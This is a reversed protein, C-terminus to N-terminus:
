RPWPGVLPVDGRETVITAPPPQDAPCGTDTDAPYEHAYLKCFEQRSRQHSVTTLLRREERDSFRAWMWDAGREEFQQRAAAIEATLPGLSAGDSLQMRDTHSLREWCEDQGWGSLSLLERCAPVRVGASPHRVLGRELRVRRWLTLANGPDNYSFLPHTIRADGNSPEISWNMLAIREWLSRSDDLPLRRHPGSTIPFISRWWDRVVHYRGNEVRVLFLAREGDRTSNWDGSTGGRWFIEYIDIVRRREVGRLVMEVRVERRLIKWYKTNAPDIGPLDWRFLPKSDFEHKQIVGVFVHDARALM